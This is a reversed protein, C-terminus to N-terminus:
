KGGRCILPILAYAIRGGGGTVLVNLESMGLSGM